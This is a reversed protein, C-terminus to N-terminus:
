TVSKELAEKMQTLLKTDQVKLILEFLRGQVNVELGNESHYFRKGKMLWDVLVRAEVEFNATRKEAYVLADAEVCGQMFREFASTATKGAAGAVKKFSDYLLPDFRLGYFRKGM